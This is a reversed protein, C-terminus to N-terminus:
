KKKRYERYSKNKKEKPKDSNKPSALRSNTTKGAKVTGEKKDKPFPAAKDIEQKPASRVSGKKITAVSDATLKMITAVEEETLYRWHGLPLNGLHVNMIRVRKLKIVRFDLANAMKRIQRNLGQTLTIRFMTKAEQKVKCPKTKGDPIRVGAAMQQIFEPTIAQETTVVYEKEHNNGARLIKNVINGDNTLFILGESDKDLRGIPFIRKPHNIFSVINTKDREDTTSTVGKPKNFAIYFPKVKKVLPEGDLEVVDGEYVRNGSVALEDNITVRGQAIYEDAERRSCFGTDSIHKNLSISDDTAQKKRPPM